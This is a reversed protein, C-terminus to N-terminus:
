SKGDAHDIGPNSIRVFYGELVLIAMMTPTWTPISTSPPGRTQIEYRRKFIELENQIFKGDM